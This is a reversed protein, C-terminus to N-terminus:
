GREEYVNVAEDGILEIYLPHYYEDAEVGHIYEPWEDLLGGFTMWPNDHVRIFDDLYYRKNYYWFSPDFDRSEEHEDEVYEIEIPEENIKVFAM